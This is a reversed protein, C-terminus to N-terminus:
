ITALYDVDERHSEHYDTVLQTWAAKFDAHTNVYIIAHWAALFAEWEEDIIFSAKYNKAV